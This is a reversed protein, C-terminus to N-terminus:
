HNWFVHVEEYATEITFVDGSLEMDQGMREYDIYYALNDPIQTTGETMEEAFDALSKYCGCYNDEAATRAEEINGNFNNLLEGAFDPYEEIFCAIENASKLGEYESLAYGDFGEYDHIAYEEAFGEPSEALMQNVQEQIDDLDDTANIWIGHLKGNNYAALDAVYIRIDANM